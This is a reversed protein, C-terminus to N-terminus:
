APRMSSEPCPDKDEDSTSTGNGVARNEVEDAILSKIRDAVDATVPNYVMMNLDSRGEVAFTSFELDIPGIRPHHLRKLGDGHGAIENDRWLAEFEPSMRSLEEVLQGIEVGAGARAADARFAGVVFRAVSLWDDQAAKVRSDVFM